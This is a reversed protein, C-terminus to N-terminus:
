EEGSFLGGAVCWAFEGALDSSASVTFVGSGPALEYGAVRHVGPTGSLVNLSWFLIREPAGAFPPVNTFPHGPPLPPPGNTVTPDFLRSLESLTPLRWGLRKGTTATLCFNSADVFFFEAASPSRQWVLGTERDLVAESNM